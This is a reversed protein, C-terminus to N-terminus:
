LSKLSMLALEYRHYRTKSECILSSNWLNGFTPSYSQRHIHCKNLLFSIVSLYKRQCQIFGRSNTVYIRMTFKYRIFHHSPLSQEFFDGVGRRFRTIHMKLRILFCLLSMESIREQYWSYIKSEVARIGVLLMTDCIWALSSWIWYFLFWYKWRLQPCSSWWDQYFLIGNRYGSWFM